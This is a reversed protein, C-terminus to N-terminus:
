PIILLNLLGKFFVENSILTIEFLNKKSEISKQSSLVRIILCRFNRFKKMLQFKQKLILFNKM